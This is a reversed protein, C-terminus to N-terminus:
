VGEMGGLIGGYGVGAGAAVFEGGIGGARIDVWDRVLDKYACCTGGGM